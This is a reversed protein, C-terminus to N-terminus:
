RVKAPLLRKINTWYVTKIHSLFLTMNEWSTFHRAFPHVKLM